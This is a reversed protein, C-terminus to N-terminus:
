PAETTETNRGRILPRGNMGIIYRWVNVGQLELAQALRDGAENQVQVYIEASSVALMKLPVVWRAIQENDPLEIWVKVM